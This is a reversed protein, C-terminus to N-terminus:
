GQHFAVITYGPEMEERTLEGLVVGIRPGSGAAREMGTCQTALRKGDPTIVVLRDVAGIVGRDPAGIAIAGRGSIEFVEEVVMLFTAEELDRWLDPHDDSPDTM